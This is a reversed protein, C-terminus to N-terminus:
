QGNHMFKGKGLDAGSRRSLSMHHYLYVLCDKVSMGPSVIRPVQFRCLRGMIVKSLALPPLSASSIGVEVTAPLDSQRRNGTVRIILPLSLVSSTPDTTKSGSSATEMTTPWYCPNEPKTAPTKPEGLLYANMIRM